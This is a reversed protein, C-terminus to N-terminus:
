TVDFSTIGTMALCSAIQKISPNSGKPRLSAGYLTRVVARLPLTRMGIVRFGFGTVNEQDKRRGIGHIQLKPYGADSRNEYNNRRFGWGLGGWRPSPAFISRDADIGAQEASLTISYQTNM